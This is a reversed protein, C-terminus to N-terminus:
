GAIGPAEMIQASIPYGGQGRKDFARGGGSNLPLISSDGGEGGGEGGMGAWAGPKFLNGALAYRAGRAGLLALSSYTLPARVEGGIGVKSGFAGAALGALELYLSWKQGLPGSGAKQAVAQDLAGFGAAIGGEVLRLSM